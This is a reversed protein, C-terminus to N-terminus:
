RDALWATVAQAVRRTSGVMFHDAGAV